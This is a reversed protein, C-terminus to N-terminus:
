QDVRIGNEDNEGNNDLGASKGDGMREIIKKM